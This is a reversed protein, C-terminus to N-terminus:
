GTLLADPFHVDFNGYPSDYGVDKSAASAGVVAGAPAQLVSAVKLGLALRSLRQPGGINLNLNDPLAARRQIAAAITAVVDAVDVFSRPNGVSTGRPM